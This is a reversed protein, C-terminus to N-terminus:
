PSNKEWHPGVAKLINISEVKVTEDGNLLGFGIAGYRYRPYQPDPWLRITYPGETQDGRDRIFECKFVYEEATFEIWYFDEPQPQDFATLTQMTQIFSGPQPYAANYVYGRFQATEKDTQPFSLEFLYFDRRNPQVRVAWKIKTGREVVVGFRVVFDYLMTEGLMPLTGLEPGRVLLAGDHEGEAGRVFRWMAPIAWRKDKPQGNELTMDVLMGPDNIIWPEPLSERATFLRWAVVMVVIIAVAVLIMRSSFRRPSSGLLEKSSVHVTPPIEATSDVPLQEPQTIAKELEDRLQLATQYRKDPDKAMARFVVREVSAPVDPRAECISAPEANIHQTLIAFPTDGKFPLSGTLMQYLIVGLSYIDSRADIPRGACQEPSLYEVTGLVMGSETAPDAAREPAYQQLFKALGFDLVKATEAEGSFRQVIINSPKLDRHIIGEEHAYHVASCVCKMISLTRSLSLKGEALIVDNLPKGEVYEMVLFPSNNETVGVDVVSVIYPHDLKALARAEIELRKRREDSIQRLIKVARPKGLGLHTACYVVGFGGQGIQRDIRYKGGIVQGVLSDSAISASM